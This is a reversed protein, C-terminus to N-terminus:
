TNKDSATGAVLEYIQGETPSIIYLAKNDPDSSIPPRNYLLGIFPGVSFRLLHFEVSYFVSM